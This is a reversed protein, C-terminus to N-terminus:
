SDFYFVIRREVYLHIDTGMSLEERNAIRTYSLTNPDTLGGRAFFFAGVLNDGSHRVIARLEHLSIDESLGM